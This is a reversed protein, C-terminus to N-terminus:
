TRRSNGTNKKRDTHVSTSKSQKIKIKLIQGKKYIYHLSKIERLHKIM